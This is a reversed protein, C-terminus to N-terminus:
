FEYKGYKRIKIRRLFYDWNDRRDKISFLPDKVEAIVNIFLRPFATKQRRAVGHWSHPSNLFLVFNNKKYPVTKTNKAYRDDIYVDNYFKFHKNKPESIEFEGGTSNDEDLRLYLLGGLIKRPDDIHRGRVSTPTAVPTNGAIQIDILVDHTKFTDVKRIGVKLKKLDSLDKGLTPYRATLEDEFLESFSNFFSQSANATVFDYWLSPLKDKSTLVDVASFNFRFNNKNWAGKSIFNYNPYNSILGNCLSEDLINEQHFYPYPTKFVNNKKANKWILLNDINM